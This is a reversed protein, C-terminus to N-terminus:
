SGNRFFKVIKVIWPLSLLACLIAAFLIIRGSRRLRDSLQSIQRQYDSVASQQQDVQLSLAMLAATDSVTDHVIERHHIGTNKKVIISDHVVITDGRQYTNNFREVTDTHFISDHVYETHVEKTPITVYKIPKCSALLIILFLLIIKAKM